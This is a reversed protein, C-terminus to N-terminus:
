QDSRGFTRAALAATAKYRDNMTCRTVIQSEDSSIGATDRSTYHDSVLEDNGLVRM